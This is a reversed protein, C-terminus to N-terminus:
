PQVELAHMCHKAQHIRELLDHSNRGPFVSRPQSYLVAAIPAATPQHPTVGPAASPGEPGQPLEPPAELGEMTNDALLDLGENSDDLGLTATQGAWCRGSTVSELQLSSDEVDLATTYKTWCPCFQM